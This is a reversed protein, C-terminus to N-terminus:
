VLREKFSVIKVIKLYDKADSALTELNPALQVCPGCWPAWFDVIVFENKEIVQKFNDKNLVVVAM